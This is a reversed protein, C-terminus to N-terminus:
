LFALYGEANAFVPEDVIVPCPFSNCLDSGFFLPGGGALFTYQIYGTRNGWAALVKQSLATSVNKRATYAVDDLYYAKGYYRIVERNLAQRTIEHEMSTPLPSGTQAQFERAIASYVLNTGIEVSGCAELIPVPQGDKIDFLLYETTYTGPDVVGIYGRLPLQGAVKLLVGAGQPLVQVEVEPGSVYQEIGNVTVFVSLRHLRQQLEDKQSTYYALPLGVGISLESSKQSKQGLLSIATLLLPDHLEPPKEKNLVQSVAFSHRAADGVLLDIKKHGAAVVVRYDQTQSFVGGLADHGAAPAVLSPFIVKEGNENVAKTFGYGIDIGIKM